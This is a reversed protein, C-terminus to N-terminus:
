ERPLSGAIFRLTIRWADSSAARVGSGGRCFSMAVFAGLVIGTIRATVAAAAGLEHWASVLSQLIDGHM